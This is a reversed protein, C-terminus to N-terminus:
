VKENKYDTCVNCFREVYIDLAIQGGCGGSELLTYKYLKKFSIWIAATIITM